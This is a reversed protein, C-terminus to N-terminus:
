AEDTTSDLEAMVDRFPRTRGAKVDDMGRDIAALSAALEDDTGIGLMDRYFTMSMVVFKAGEAEAEAVGHNQEVAQQVDTSIKLTMNVNYWLNTPRTSNM